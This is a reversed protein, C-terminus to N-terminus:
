EPRFTFLNLFSFRLSSSVTFPFSFRFYRPKCQNLNSRAVRLFRSENSICTIIAYYRDIIVNCCHANSCFTSNSRLALVLQQFVRFDPTARSTFKKERSIFRNVYVFYTAYVICAMLIRLFLPSRSWLTSFRTYLTTEFCNKSTSQQRNSYNPFHSSFM